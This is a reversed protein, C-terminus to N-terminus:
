RHMLGMNFSYLAAIDKKVFEYADLNRSAHDEEEVQEKVFWSLFEQTAYDKEKVAVDYIDHISKTVLQEHELALKFPEGFDKYEGKIGDVTSYTPRVGHSQLYSVIKEAHELEERSQTNFWHAFGELGKFEYYGAFDKYLYSSYLEKNLQTQLLDEIKKNLM